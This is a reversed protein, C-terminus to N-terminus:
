VRRRLRGPSSHQKSKLLEVEETLEKLDQQLLTVNQILNEYRALKMKNENMIEQLRM